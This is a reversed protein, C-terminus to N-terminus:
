HVGGALAIIVAVALLIFAATLLPAKRALAQHNARVDEALSDLLSREVVHPPM